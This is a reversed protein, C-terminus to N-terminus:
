INAVIVAVVILATTFLFLWGLNANGARENRYQEKLDEVEKDSLGTCHTCSEEKVPFRLGCRQCKKTLKIKIPLQVISMELAM